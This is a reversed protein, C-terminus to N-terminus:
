IDSDLISAQSNPNLYRLGFEELILQEKFDEYVDLRLSTHMYRFAFGFSSLITVSM